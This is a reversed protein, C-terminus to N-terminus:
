LAGSKARAAIAVSAPGPKSRAPAGETLERLRERLRLLAASHIQSVRSEGIGLLAGVQKMTLEEFHYLALVERERDALEGIAKELLGMMESRVAQHYPDEQESGAPSQIEEEGSPNGSDPQLSGVDLGRLDGLLHQLSELGIGLEAAIEPESPDCGLRVKCDLIAQELRRARRRLTRPSWDVQRLSDLIAGRIRFEAYHKLQVNKSPDYKRVADMLGLVGAHVLDELLVQPPLRQHIRRAIYRVQALHELVVLQRQAEDYQRVVQVRAIPRQAPVDCTGADEALPGSWVAAAAEAIPSAPDFDDARSGVAGECVSCSVEERQRERVDRNQPYTRSAAPM